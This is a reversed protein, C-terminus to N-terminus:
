AHQPSVVLAQDGTFTCDFKVVDENGMSEKFEVNAMGEESQGNIPERYIQIWRKRSLRWDALLLQYVPDGPDLFGSCSVGWSRGVILSSDWGMDQKNNTGVTKSKRDVDGDVQAPLLQWNESAGGTNNMGIRILVKRGAYQNSV